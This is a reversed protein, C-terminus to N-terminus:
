IDSDKNKQMVGKEKMSTYCDDGLVIHDLIPIDLVKSAKILRNTCSIDDQSLEPDGSPHNHVLIIAAANGLIATKFLDRPHVISATLSGKSVIHAGIVSNKINLLLVGFIEVDLEDTKFVTRAVEAADDPSKISSSSLPYRHSSEKVLKISHMPIIISM